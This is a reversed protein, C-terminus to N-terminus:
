IRETLLCFSSSSSEGRGVWGFNNCLTVLVVRPLSTVAKLKDRETSLITEEMINEIYYCNLFSSIHCKRLSDPRPMESSFVIKM